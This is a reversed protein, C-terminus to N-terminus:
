VCTNQIGITCLVNRLRTCTFSYLSLPLSVPCPSTCPSPSSCLSLPFSVPSPSACFSSCPSHSFLSFSLYLSLSLSLSFSLSPCPHSPIPSNFSHLLSPSHGLLLHIDSYESQVYCDDNLANPHCHCIYTVHATM